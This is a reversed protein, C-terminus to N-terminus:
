TTICGAEGTCAHHVHLTSLEKLTKGSSDAMCASNSVVESKTSMQDSYQHPIHQPILKKFDKGFFAVYEHLIRAVLVSFNLKLAKYDDKSPLIDYVSLGDINSVKPILSLSSFELRSKVSYIQVYHLSQSQANLRMYRPNVTKDLNDFVVKHFRPPEAHEFCPALEQETSAPTISQPPQSAETESTESSLVPLTDFVSDASLSSGSKTSESDSPITPQLASSETPSGPNETDTSSTDDPLLM